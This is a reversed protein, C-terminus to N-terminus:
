SDDGGGIIEELEEQTIPRIDEVRLYEDLPPEAQTNTTVYEGQVADWVYWYGEVIIPYHTVNTQTQTVANNLERLAHNILDLQSSNLTTGPANTAALLNDGTQRIECIPSGFAAYYSDVEQGDVVKNNAYVPSLYFKIDWEYKGVPLNVTDNHTLTIELTDGRSQIEKQFILTQTLPDIISFVAVGVGNSNALVPITFIGTDGRPIILRRQVLRIM